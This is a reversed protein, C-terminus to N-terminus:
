IKWSNRDGSTCYVLSDEGYIGDTCGFVSFSGGRTERANEKADNIADAKADYGEASAYNQRIADCSDDVLVYSDYENNWAIDRGERSDYADEKLVNKICETVIQRLTSENIKVVNKKM